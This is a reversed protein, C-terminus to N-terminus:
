RPSRGLVYLGGPVAGDEVVSFGAQRFRDLWVLRMPRSGFYGGHLLPFVFKMWADRNVAVILWDGGPELVRKVEAFARMVDRGSLHDVAAVSLAAAFRETTFPLHRMDGTKVVARGEFGAAKVNALLRAANNDPIGYNQAFIDLAVVQAGPRDRLVGVTARGSGAGLDLVRGTGSALFKPTPIPVPANFLFKQQIIWFSALGWFAGTAFLLRVWTRWRLRWALAALALFLLGALLHGHTWPWDYGFDM